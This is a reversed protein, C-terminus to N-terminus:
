IFQCDAYKSVNNKVSCFYLKFYVGRQFCLKSNFSKFILFEEFIQFNLNKRSQWFIEIEIKRFIPVESIEFEFVNESKKMRAVKKSRM